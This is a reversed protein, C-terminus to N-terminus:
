RCSLGKGAQETEGTKVSEIDEGLLVRDITQTLLEYTVPGIVKGVVSGESDVLFTEPVGAHGTPRRHEPGNPDTDSV